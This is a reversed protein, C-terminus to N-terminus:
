DTPQSTFRVGSKLTGSLFQACTNWSEEGRGKPTDRGCPSNTEPTHDSRSYATCASTNFQTHLRPILSFLNPFFHQKQAPTPPHHSLVTQPTLKRERRQKACASRQCKPKEQTQRKFSSNATTHTHTNQSLFETYGQCDQLESQISSLNAQRQRQATVLPPGVM